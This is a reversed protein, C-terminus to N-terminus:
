KIKKLSSIFNNTQIDGDFKTLFVQANDEGTELEPLMSLETAYYSENEKAGLPVKQALSNLSLNRLTGMLGKRKNSFKTYIRLSADMTELDMRGVIFSSLQPSSSRIMMREVVNNKIDLTGNIKRFAGDPVNIIDILTSPSIMVIPNRFIAAMNLVYQVLGLKAISGDNIDFKIKGNLKMNKDTNFDLFASAKGSIEKPLNLTSSAIIDANANRTGLKVSYLQKAMDCHVKLSSIGEAFDFRNSKIELIGKETLTLMAHLNGFNILKYQGKNVHFNCRKIAVLDPIFEIPKDEEKTSQHEANSKEEVEFYKTSIDSRAIKMEALRKQFQKRQEETLKPRPAFTQMVRDVDLEDFTMDVNKIIIPFLIRNQIDGDFKYKSRRLSGNAVLHINNRDTYMKGNKISLGQGVVIVDKMEMDSIIYPNKIDHNNYKLHGSFTGNRFLRQNILANFFESPLPKPVSFELEKIWGTIINVKSSVTILPKTTPKGKESIFESIYYNIHEIELEEGKMILKLGLARDFKNSSISSNEVLLDAGKPIKAGGMVTVKRSIDYDVKLAFKALGKLNFKCGAVKSVYRAFEDSAYGIVDLQTDATKTYDKVTGKIDISNAKQTGYFGKIEKIYIDKPNIEILGKTITFPLNAVPILKANIRDVNINGNIGSNKLNFNFKFNGKLDKFCALVEKGNPIILNSDLAQKVNNVNFKDSSIDFNYNNERDIYGNIKVMSKDVIFKFNDVNIKYDKFYITDFDKFLLRLRKDDYEIDTLISFHVYKPEKAKTILIDKANFKILVNDKPRYLIKCKKLYLDSNFWRIKYEFPKQEKQEEGSLTQLKNVDAFIDDAGVKNLIIQKQLIKKFSISTDLNKISLIIENDKKLTINDSKFDLNSDLGTKLNPKELVLEAGVSDKVIDQIYNIFNNSSIAHPIVVLYVFVPITFLILACILLIILVKINKSM